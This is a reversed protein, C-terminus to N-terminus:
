KKRLTVVVKETLIVLLWRIMLLLQSVDLVMVLKCRSAHTLLSM